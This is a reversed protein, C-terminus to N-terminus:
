SNCLLFFHINTNLFFKKLCILDVKRVKTPSKNDETMVFPLKTSKVAPVSLSRPLIPSRSVSQHPVNAATVDSGGLQSSHGGHTDTKVGDEEDLDEGFPNPPPIRPRYWYVRGNPGRKSHMPPGPSQVPPLQTWPGPHIIGLWPHNTKVPNKLSRSSCHFSLSSM